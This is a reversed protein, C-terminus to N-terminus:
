RVKGPAALAPMPSAMSIPPASEADERDGNFVLRGTEHQAVAMVATMDAGM